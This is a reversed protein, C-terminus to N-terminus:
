MKPCEEFKKAQEVDKYSLIPPIDFPWDIAITPDNWCLVQELSQDYYNTVKYHFDAIDSLTYFGHAMGPPAWLQLEPRDLNIGFWNSFTSSQERLDVIVDYVCGSMCRILKGQCKPSLQYHLGRLVGRKSRTHNDQVFHPLLFDKENWSEIFFGRSDEHKDVEILLAGDISTKHVKM